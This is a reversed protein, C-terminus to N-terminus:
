GEHQAEDLDADYATRECVTRLAFSSRIRAVGPFRSLYTRYLQEYHATNAAVVHLLYDSDGTMFHCSMVGPCTAVVAEFADLLEESQHTLTIEVFINEPRGLAQQDLVAVYGQIVGGSELRRVRRHCASESRHIREALEANTMRGDEQLLRLIEWDTEDQGLIM